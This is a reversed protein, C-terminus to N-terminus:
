RRALEVADLRHAEADVALDAAPGVASPSSVSRAASRTRSGRGRRTSAAATDRGIGDSRRCRGAPAQAHATLRLLDRRRRPLADHRRAPDQRRGARAAAPVIDGGRLVVMQGWAATTCPTSPPSASGPRCCGTSRRRRAAASSTASCARGPDRLRHARRDGPRDRRRHRRPPRPRVQRLGEGGVELTGPEPEAGEAVVVISAYRGREHRRSIGSRLGRRHRVPDGPDAGRTAGGAIGAYTAIWGSHRGMVEVVM